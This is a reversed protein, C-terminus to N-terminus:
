RVVKFKKLINKLMDFIKSLVEKQEPILAGFLLLLVVACVSYLCGQWLIDFFTNPAPLSGRILILIFSTLLTVSIYFVYRLYYVYPKKGMGHKIVIFPDYWVLTLTRSITTGLLPGVIGFKFVLAISFVLNLLATIGPRLWGKKFLGISNRFTAVNMGFGYIIFNILLVYIATESLNEGIWWEM